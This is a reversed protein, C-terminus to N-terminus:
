GSLTKYLAMIDDALTQHAAYLLGRHNMFTSDARNLEMTQGYIDTAIAGAEHFLCATAAYDWLSGGSNNTRPYKFYCTNPTEIIKCATLVGGAAFQIEADNLGQKQAMNQLGAQTQEFWPHQQFSFDTQLVLPQTYELAPIQLIKGNKFVGGGRIAHMLNDTVPDYVVGILPTGNRAVLAISVSFGPTNNIFALTGDMPDISWFAIKKLRQGTDPSEETLLALGNNVCSPELIELIAAQAKYDVETVVQSAVSTGRDKHHVQIKNQYHRDIIDGAARAAIIALQTLEQLNDVNLNM